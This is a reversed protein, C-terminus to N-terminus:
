ATDFFRKSADKMFKAITPLELDRHHISNRVCWHAATANRCFKIQIVQLRNMAKPPAHAFVPSAYTLATKSYKFQIAASKEPNVKIRWTRFWRSLEDIARQLHLLTSKKLRARFYLATDDAFLALQVGSSPHLIDNSYASYLLPSLYSSRCQYTTYNLSHVRISDFAKTPDFFIAVTKQQSKFGELIYEVLRLVHQPSSHVPRFGFQEDIILGKGLLHDRTKLIREFLKGLSRLFSIPQTDTLTRRAANRLTPSRAHILTHPAACHLDRPPLQADTGTVYEPSETTQVGLGSVTEAGLSRERLNVSWIGIAELQMMLGQFDNMTVTCRLVIEVLGFVALIRQKMISNRHKDEPEMMLGQFDSM